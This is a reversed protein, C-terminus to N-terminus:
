PGPEVVLDLYTAGSDPIRPQGWCEVPFSVMILSYLLHMLNVADEPMDDLTFKGCYEIAEEARPAFAEYFAQMEQITSGLREAYRERETVLCWKKAYPELDSFTEPLLRDAM